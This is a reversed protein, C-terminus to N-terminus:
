WFRGIFEVGQKGFRGNSLDICESTRNIMWGKLMYMVEVLGITMNHWWSHQKEIIRANELM